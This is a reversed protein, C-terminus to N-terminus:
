SQYIRLRQTLFPTTVGVPKVALYVQIPLRRAPRHEM